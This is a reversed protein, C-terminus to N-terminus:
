GAPPSPTRSSPARTSRGSPRRPTAPSCSCRCTRRRRRGPSRSRRGAARGAPWPPRSPRATAPATSSSTPADLKAQEQPRDIRQLLYSNHWRLDRDRYPLADGGDPELQFGGNVRSVMGTLYFDSSVIHTDELKWATPDAGFGSQDWTTEQPRLPGANRGLKVKDSQWAFLTASNHVALQANLKLNWDELDSRDSFDDITRLDIEQRAYSGWLWLRDRVLYGGLEAGWEAVREIRNGQAFAEQAEGGNWPGPRGLEAADLALDSQARDDSLLYRGSGRWENTGRKTVMNLVVGGTAVTADGGGTTVAVEEFADFDYYGPSSGLATMDTVVMGDLSWVAQDGGSGPGVFRSQQGSENGGVNVRDTLVGPTTQLVAWPDRASPIKELDTKAVIAGTSIRREDLLPSEATVTIMESVSGPPYSAAASAAAAAVRPGAAPDRPANVPLVCTVPSVGAPARPTVDVSVLSTYDTVLNHRLGLAVVERRVEDRDAGQHVSDMLGRIKSRAWLKDIGAGKLEGAVPFSDEWVESGRVGSVAVSGSADKLRATVVLPEGLYLDPIREPWAEASPDSWQAEIRQLMPAELQSFLADMAPAVKALDGIQTFSGRGLSALRSLLVANPASGIAIPFLRRDGLNANLFQVVAPEDELQGDTAFIVQPVLGARPPQRFAIELAPLMRTGGNIGLAAVFARARAVTDPTAAVSAPFISSSTTSFEIVNFWDGPQLRGLALLLAERAQELKAGTMSGSTDIIFATERPLRSAAAEPTDPPMVMLLAYREGDVEESYFVARPERGVAPTWELVLDGDAPTVGAALDVAYRHDKGKEVVIAHTPSEVKALPFGPALDAHFAFPNIPAAGRPLVPPLRLGSTGSPAPSGGPPAVVM